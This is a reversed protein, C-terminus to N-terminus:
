RANNEPMITDLLEFLSKRSRQKHNGDILSFHAIKNTECKEVAQATMEQETIFLAKAGMGGYNKVASAFKDIDTNDNIQTKCEVFLLKTGANVIVDIENKPNRNNYPFVINMWIEPCQTKWHSLIEAVEYEFWGSTVAMDFAHPSQFEFEEHHGGYGIVYMRVYQEGDMDKNWEIESQTREDVYNGTKNFQFANKLKQNDKRPITLDNFQRSYKRRAAKIEKLQDLDDETYDTMKVYSQVTTQNFKFIESISMNDINKVSDKAVSDKAYNYIRSNQDVYILEVNKYKESLKAVAVTWPKTGSSINVEVTCGAYNELLQKLQEDAKFYDNPDLELMDVQKGYDASIDKRLREATKQTSSSHVLVFKDAKSERAALYVPMTQGGVLAIHVVSM